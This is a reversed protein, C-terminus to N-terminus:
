RARIYDSDRPTDEQQEQADATPALIQLVQTREELRDVVGFKATLPWAIHSALVTALFEVFFPSFLNPDTINATYILVAEDQNTVISKTNDPALEVKFAIPDADDNSPNEIMRAKVCDAPYMYRYAWRNTPADEGHTALTLSKRAFSWNYASLAKEKAFEYWLSVQAAEASDEDLSEITSNAGAKSLAMNAIKVSSLTAM